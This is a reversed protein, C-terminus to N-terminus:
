GGMYKILWGLGLVILPVIWWILCIKILQLNIGEKDKKAM